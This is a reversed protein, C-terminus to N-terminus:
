GRRLLFKHGQMAAFEEFIRGQGQSASGQQGGYAKPGRRPEVGPNIDDEVFM